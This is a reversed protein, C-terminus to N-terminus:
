RGKLTEQTTQSNHSWVLLEGFLQNSNSTRCSIIWMRLIRQSIFLPSLFHFVKAVEELLHTQDDDLSARSLYQYVASDPESNFDGCIMLAMDQSLIFQEIEKLLTVTQWLKIAPRTHNSYLHTNVVCIRNSTRSRQQQQQPTRALAELVIIQAVNDKSL